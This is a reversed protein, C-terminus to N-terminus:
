LDTGAAAADPTPDDTPAPAPDGYFEGHEDRRAFEVTFFPLAGGDIEAGTPHMAVSRALLANPPAGLRCKIGEQIFAMAEDHTTTVVLREFTVATEM